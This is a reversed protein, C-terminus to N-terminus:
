RTSSGPGDTTPPRALHESYDVKESVGDGDPGLPGSPDGWWNRRADVIVGSRNQVGLGGNNELVCDKIQVLNTTAYEVHVGDGVNNALTCDSVFVDGRRGYVQLAHGGSNRITTGSVVGVELFVAASGDLGASDVLTNRISGSANYYWFVIGAGAIHRVVSEEVLVPGQGIIGRQAFEVITHRFVGSSASPTITIGGWPSEPDAATFTIPLDETGGALITGGEVFEYGGGPRPIYGGVVLISAGPAFCVLSGPEITLVVSEDVGVVLEGSVHHPGQTAVWTESARVTDFHVAGPSTCSQIIAEPPASIADSCGWVSLLIVAALVPLRPSWAYRQVSGKRNERMEIGDSKDTRVAPRGFRHGGLAREM